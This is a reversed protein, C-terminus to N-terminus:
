KNGCFMKSPAQMSITVVVTVHTVISQLPKWNALNRSLLLFIIIEKEFIKDPLFFNFKLRALSAAHENEVLELTGYVFFIRYILLRLIFIRSMRM